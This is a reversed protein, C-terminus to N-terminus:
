YIGDVRSREVELHLRLAIWRSEALQIGVQWLPDMKEAPQKGDDDDGVISQLFYVVLFLVNAPWEWGYFM